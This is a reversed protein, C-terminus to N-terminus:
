SYYQIWFVMNFLFMKFYEHEYKLVLYTCSISLKLLVNWIWKDILWVKNM